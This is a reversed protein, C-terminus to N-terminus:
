KIGNSSDITQKQVLEYLWEIPVPIDNMTIKDGSTIKIVLWKILANYEDQTVTHDLSRSWFEGCYFDSDTKIQSVFGGSWGASIAFSIKDNQDIGRCIGYDPIANTSIQEWHVCNDCRPSM